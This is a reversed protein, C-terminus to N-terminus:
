TAAISGRAMPAGRRWTSRKDNTRIELEASRTLTQKTAAGSQAAKLFAAIDARPPAATAAGDKTAIAETVNATLLKRWM